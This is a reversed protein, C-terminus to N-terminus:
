SPAACTVRLTDAYREGVEPFDDDDFDTGQLEKLVAELVSNAAEVDAAVKGTECDSRGEPRPPLSLSFAAYYTPDFTRIEVAGADAAVPTEFRRVHSSALRGESLVVLPLVPPGLPLEAEGLYARTTGTFGEEPKQDFGAFGAAEEKTLAGDGDPDLGYDELMMLSYLEDYVWVVRVGALRGEDDFVPSLGSDIFLHPHAAASTACLLLALLPRLIM